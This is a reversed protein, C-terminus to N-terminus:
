RAKTTTSTTASSAPQTAVAPAANRINNPSVNVPPTGAGSPANLLGNTNTTANVINQDPTFSGADSGIPLFPNRRGEPKRNEIIVTNDQLRNFFNSEFIDSQLTIANLSELQALLERNDNVAAVVSPASEVTLDGVSEKKIFVTYVVLVGAFIGVFMLIKKYKQFIDKM